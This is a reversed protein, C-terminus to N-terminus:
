SSSREARPPKPKSGAEKRESSAIADIRKQLEQLAKTQDAVLDKQRASEKSQEQSAKADAENKEKDQYYSAAAFGAGVISLLVSAILSGVAWKLQTKFQRDSAEDRADFRVLFADAAEAIEKLLQASAKTMEATSRAVERDHERERAIRKQMEGLHDHFQIQPQVQLAEYAQLTGSLSDSRARLSALLDQAPSRLLKEVRARKAIAQQADQQLYAEVIRDFFQWSTEGDQQGVIGPQKLQIQADDPGGSVVWQAGLRLAEGIAAIDAQELADLTESPLPASKDLLGARPSLSAVLPLTSRARDEPDLQLLDRHRKVLVADARHVFVKGAKTAIEAIPKAYTDLSLGQKRETM